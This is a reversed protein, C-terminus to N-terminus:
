QLGRAISWAVPAAATLGVVTEDGYGGAVHGCWVAVVRRSDWLVTWADGWDSSTGTKWAFRPLLADAVHGLAPQSREPGSLMEYVARGPALDEGAEPAFRRYARALELLSVEVDGVALGLGYEEFPEKVGAFGLEVLREAFRDVGIRSLLDIFPINLSMVLADRMTVEGRFRGDFNQPRWGSYDRPADELLDGPEAYGLEMALEALFPKLTSGASRRAVATNVQACAGGGFYDGSVAMAEVEGDAARVVVAAVDYGGRRSASAVARECIEQAEPDLASGDVGAALAWDCYHPALFPRREAVVRPRVAKAAAVQDADALGLALMRALVYDRRALAAALARDPRFRSPAQVIGALLAAEGLGLSKAPHGFWGEAAAEIGVLNAGFPARNLYQSVIWLKDHRLETKLARIAEVCKWPLTRPHPAILRTAQMTITSAGSIRRLATVNQFCARLVSPVDVGWHTFFRRDESAVLAQVIWDNTSAAYYPRCDVDGPGLTVRLVNGANDRLVTGGPYVAARDLQPDVLAWALLLAALM